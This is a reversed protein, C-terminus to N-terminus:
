PLFGHAMYPEHAKLAGKAREPHHLAKQRRKAYGGLHNLPPYVKTDREEMNRGHFKRTGPM